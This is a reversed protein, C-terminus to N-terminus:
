SKIIDSFIKELIKIRKSILVENRNKLMIESMQRIKEPHALLDNLAGAM